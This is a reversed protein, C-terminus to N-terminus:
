KKGRGHGGSIGKGGEEGKDHGKSDSKGKDQGFGGGKAWKDGSLGFGKGASSGTAKVPGHDRGTKFNRETYTSEGTFKSKSPVGIRMQQELSLNSKNHGLGSIRPHLGLEHSIEGWGMGARRMAAIDRESVAGAEALVRELNEQARTLLAELHAKEREYDPSDPDLGAIAKEVREVRETADIVDEDHMAQELSAAAVNEAKQAQASNQFYSREQALTATPSLTIGVISIAMLFSFLLITIKLKVHCM